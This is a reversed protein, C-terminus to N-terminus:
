REGDEVVEVEVVEERVFSEEGEIVDHVAEGRWGKEEVIEVCVLSRLSINM